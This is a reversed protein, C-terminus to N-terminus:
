INSKKKAELVFIKITYKSNLAEKQEKTKANKMEALYMIKYTILRHNGGDIYYESGLKILRLNKNDVRSIIRKLQIQCPISARSVFRKCYSGNRKLAKNAEILPMYKYADHTTGVVDKICIEEYEGVNEIYKVLFEDFGKFIKCMSKPINYLDIGIYKLFEAKYFSNEHTNKYIYFESEPVEWYNRM